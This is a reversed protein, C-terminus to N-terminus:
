SVLFYTYVLLSLITYYVFNLFFYFIEILLCLLAQYYSSPYVAACYPLNTLLLSLLRNTLPLNFITLSPLSTLM